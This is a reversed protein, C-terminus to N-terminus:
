MWDANEREETSFISCSCFLRLQIGSENLFNMTTPFSLMFIRRSSFPILMIPILFKRSSSFLRFRQVLLGGRTVHQGCSADGTDDIMLHCITPGAQNSSVTLERSSTFLITHTMDSVPFTSKCPSSGPIADGTKKSCEFAPPEHIALILDKNIHSTSGEDGVIFSVSRKM